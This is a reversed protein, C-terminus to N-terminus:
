RRSVQYRAFVRRREAAEDEQGMSTWVDTYVAAAGRSRRARIASRSAGPATSHWARRRSSSARAAARLWAAIGRSRHRGLMVGAHALSTAVNNGDGVYAITRGRLAGCAGAADPLGRAGPLPAGRRHARQGRAARRRRPSNRWSASRSRASSSRTWGANSTARSMRSRSAGASRWKPPLTLVDGGLERVAVEFTSRTRLSPKDFLM